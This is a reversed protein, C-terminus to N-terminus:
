EQTVPDKLGAEVFTQQKKSDWAETQAAAMKSASSHQHRHSVTRLFLLFTLMRLTLVHNYTSDKLTSVCPPSMCILEYLSDVLSLSKPSPQSAVVARCSGNELRHCSCSIYTVSLTAVVPNLFESSPLSIDHTRVLALLM